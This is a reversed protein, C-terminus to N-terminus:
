INPKRALIAQKSLYVIYLKDNISIKLGGCM